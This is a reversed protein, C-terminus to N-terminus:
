RGKLAWDIEQRQGSWKEYDIANLSSKIDKYTYTGILSILGSNVLLLGKDRSAASKATAFVMGNLGAGIVAGGVGAGWLSQAVARGKRGSLDQMSNNHRERSTLLANASKEKLKIAQRTNKSLQKSGAGLNFFVDNMDLRNIKSQVKDREKRLEAKSMGSYKSQYKAAKTRLIDLEKSRGSEFKALKAESRRQGWKMGKVGYHALFNDVTNDM